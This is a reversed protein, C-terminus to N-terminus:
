QIIEPDVPKNVIPDPTIVPPTQVQAQKAKSYEAQRILEELLEYTAVKADDFTCDVPLMLRYTFNNKTTEITVYQRIEM